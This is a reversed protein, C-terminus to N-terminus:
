REDMHSVEFRNIAGRERYNETGFAQGKKGSRHM